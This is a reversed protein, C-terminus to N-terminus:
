KTGPRSLRYLCHVRLSSSEPLDPHEFTTLTDVMRLRDMVARSRWNNLVAFAVIEDLGLQEFGVRLAETAAETAYGKGWHPRALRWGVEVCPAFPLDARPVNLGTFGIFEGTALLEVAWFGWGREAISAEVRDVLADSESRSLTKPFFAMVEPDASMAAFAPRDEAKWQRLQLRATRPEILQPM